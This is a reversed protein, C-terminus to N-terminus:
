VGKLLQYIFSVSVLVKQGVHILYHASALLSDGRHISLDHSLQNVITLSFKVYRAWGSPLSQDDTVALSVVLSDGGKYGKPYTFLDRGSSFWLFLILCSHTISKM